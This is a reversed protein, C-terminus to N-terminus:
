AIKIKTAVRALAALSEDFIAKKEETILNRQENHRTIFNELAINAIAVESFKQWLVFKDAIDKNGLSRRWDHMLSHQRHTEEVQRIALALAYPDQADVFMALLELYASQDTVQDIIYAGNYLHDVHDHPPYDYNLYAEGDDGIKYSITTDTKETKGPLILPKDAHHLRRDLAIAGVQKLRDGTERPFLVLNGLHKNRYDHDWVFSEMAPEEAPPPTPEGIYIGGGAREVHFPMPWVGKNIWGLWAETNAKSGIVKTPEPPETIAAVFGSEEVLVTEYLAKHVDELEELPVGMKNQPNDPDLLIGYVPSFNQLQRGYLLVDRYGDQHNWNLDLDAVARELANVPQFIHPAEGHAPMTM